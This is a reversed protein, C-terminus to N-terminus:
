VGAKVTETSYDLRNIGKNNEISFYCISNHIYGQWKIKTCNGKPISDMVYHGNYFM